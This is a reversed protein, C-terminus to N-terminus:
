VLNPDNMMQQQDLMNNTRKSTPVIPIVQPTTKSHCPATCEAAHLVDKEERDHLKMRADVLKTSLKNVDAMLTSKEFEANAILEERKKEFTEVVNLLKEELNVNLKQLHDYDKKLSEYRMQWYQEGKCATTSDADEPRQGNSTTSHPTTMIPPQSTTAPRSVQELSTRKVSDCLNLQDARAEDGNLQTNGTMTIAQELNADLSIPKPCNWPNRRRSFVFFLLLALVFLKGSSFLRWNLNCLIKFERM